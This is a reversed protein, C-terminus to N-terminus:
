ALADGAVESGDIDSREDVRGVNVDHLLVDVVGNCLTSPHEGTPVTPQSMAREELRRHQGVYVV